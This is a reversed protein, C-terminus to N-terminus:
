EQIRLVSRLRIGGQDFVLCTGVLGSDRCSRSLLYGGVNLAGM